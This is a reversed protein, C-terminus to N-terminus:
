ANHKGILSHQDTGILFPQLMEGFRQNSRFKRGINQVAQPVTQFHLLVVGAHQILLQVNLFHQICKDLIHTGEMFKLFFFLISSRERNVPAPQSSKCLYQM